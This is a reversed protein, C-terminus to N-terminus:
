NGTVAEKNTPRNFSFPNEKSFGFTVNRLNFFLPLYKQISEGSVGIELVPNIPYLFPSLFLPRSGTSQWRADEREAPFRSRVRSVGPLAWLSGPQPTLGGAHRPLVSSPQPPLPQAVWWPRGPEGRLCALGRAPVLCCGPAAECLRATSPNCCPQECRLSRCTHLGPTQRKGGSRLPQLVVLWSPERFCEQM